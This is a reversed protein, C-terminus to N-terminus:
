CHLIKNGEASNKAKVDSSELHEEHGQKLAGNEEILRRFVLKDLAGTPAECAIFVLYSLLFCWVLVAFSLTIPLGALPSCRIATSSIQGCDMNRYCLRPSIARGIRGSGCAETEIKLQYFNRIQIMLHWWHKAMDVYFNQFFAETNPGTVFRPLLYLWMIVFFLPVCVRLFFFTDISNFAASVVVMRWESTAIFMNLMGSNVLVQLDRQNCDDIYCVALRAIPYEPVILNESFYRLRPHMADSISSTLEKTTTYKTYVLLNCYQGRSLANGYSDRVITELCEDFAGMDVHSAQFVGTPYKGTADFLRLVWPERNQLARMTRLLATSCEPRVDAELLKRILSRPVKSLGAAVVERAVQAFDMEETKDVAYDPSSNAAASAPRGMAITANQALSCQALFPLLVCSSAFVRLAVHPMRIDRRASKRFVMISLVKSLVAIM